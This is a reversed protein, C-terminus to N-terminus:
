YTALTAELMKITSYCSLANCSLIYVIAENGARGWKKNKPKRETYYVSALSRKEREEAEM